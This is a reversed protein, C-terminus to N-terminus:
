SVCPASVRVSEWDNLDALFFEMPTRADAALIAMSDCTNVEGLTLMLHGEERIDPSICPNLFSAARHGAQRM